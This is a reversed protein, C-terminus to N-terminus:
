RLLAIAAAQSLLAILGIFYGAAIAVKTFLKLNLLIALALTVRSSLLAIFEARNHTKRTSKLFAKGAFYLAAALIAAALFGAATPLAFKRIDASLEQFSQKVVKYIDEKSIDNPINDIKSEISNKVRYITERVANGFGESFIKIGYLVGMLSGFILAFVGYVGFILLCLLVNYWMPLCRHASASDFVFYAGTCFVLLSFIIWPLIVKFSRDTLGSMGTLLQHAPSNRKDKKFFKRKFNFKRNSFHERGTKDAAFKRKNFPKKIGPRNNNNEM